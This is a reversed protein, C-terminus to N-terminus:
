LDYMVEAQPFLNSSTTPEASSISMLRTENILDDLENSEIEQPVSIGSAWCESLSCTNVVKLSNDTVQTPFTENEFRNKNVRIDNTMGEDCELPSNIGSNSQIEDHITEHDVSFPKGDTESEYGKTHPTVTESEPKQSSSSDDGYESFHPVSEVEDSFRVRKVSKGSKEPTLDSDNGYSM